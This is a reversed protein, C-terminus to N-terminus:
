YCYLLTRSQMHKQPYFYSELLKDFVAGSSYSLTPFHLATVETNSIVKRHVNQVDSNASTYVVNQSKTKGTTDSFNM